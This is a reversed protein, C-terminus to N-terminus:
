CLGCAPTPRSPPSTRRSWAAGSRTPSRGTASSPGPSITRGTSSACIPRRGGSAAAEPIRDPVLGAELALLTVTRYMAGTDLYRMGLRKAVERAITSKGSGAPGDIAIIM